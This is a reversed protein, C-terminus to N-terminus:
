LFRTSFPFCAKKPIAATATLILRPVFPRSVPVLAQAHACIIKLAVESGIENGAAANGKDLPAESERTWLGKM